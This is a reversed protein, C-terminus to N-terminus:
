EVKCGEDKLFSEWGGDLRQKFAGWMTTFKWEPTKEIMHQPELDIMVVEAINDNNDKNLV